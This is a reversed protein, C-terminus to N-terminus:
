YILVVITAACAAFVLTYFFFWTEHASKLSFVFSCAGVFALAWVVDKM